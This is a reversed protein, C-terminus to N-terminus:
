PFVLREGTAARNANLNRKLEAYEEDVKRIEEPDDTADQEMWSELLAIAALNEADPVAAAAESGDAPPIHAELDPLHDAVIQRALISDDIGRRRAAAALLAGQQPTLEITLRM